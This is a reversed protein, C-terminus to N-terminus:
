GAFGQNCRQRRPQADMRQKEKVAPQAARRKPELSRAVPPLRVVQNHTAIHMIGCRPDRLAFGSRSDSRPEPQVDPNGSEIPRQVRLVTREARQEPDLFEEILIQFGCGRALGARGRLLGFPRGAPGVLLFRSM